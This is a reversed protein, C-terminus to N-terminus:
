ENKKECCFGAYSVRMLTPCEYKHEEARRGRTEQRLEIGLRHEGREPARGGDHAQRGEVGAQEVGGAERTIEGRRHADEDGAGCREQRLGKGRKLFAGAM